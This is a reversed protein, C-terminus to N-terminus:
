RIVLNGILLLVLLSYGIVRVLRQRGLTPVVFRALLAPLFCLLISGFVFLWAKAVRSAFELRHVPIISALLIGAVLCLCQVLTSRSGRRFSAYCLLCPVGFLAIAKLLFNFHVPDLRYIGEYFSGFIRSIIDM